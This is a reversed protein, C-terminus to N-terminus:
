TQPASKPPPMQSRNAVPGGAFIASGIVFPLEVAEGHWYTWSSILVAALAAMCGVYVKLHAENTNAPQTSGADSM